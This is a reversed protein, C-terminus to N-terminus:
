PLYLSTMTTSRLMMTSQTLIHEWSARSQAASRVQWSMKRHLLPVFRHHLRVPALMHATRIRTHLRLLLVHLLVSLRCYHRRLPPFPLSPMLVRRTCAPWCMLPATAVVGVPLSGAGIRGLVASDRMDHCFGAAAHM